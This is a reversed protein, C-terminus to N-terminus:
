LLYGFDEQTLAKGYKKFSLRVAEAIHRNSIPEEERAALFAAQLLADKIESGSMEFQEAFFDLDLGEKVPAKGPLLKKWLGKRTKADPLQFHVMYKIRRKFADDINDMLNTALVSIGEYEELKQLLHAVESNAHRDNSDSVATRKSFFADAEDFFLLANLDRAREFLESIHKQTEGIYKSVMRSIDIRYLELGLENAMAKVAMTKGTGPPGYFLACIGNGYFAKELFGWEAEVKNRYKLRGLILELQAKVEEEVMLDEWFINTDLLDAYEGLASSNRQKVAAVVDEMSIADRRYSIAIGLAQRLVQKIEGARLLYRNSVTVAEVKHNPYEKLFHKWLTIKTAIDPDKVVIKLFERAGAPTRGMTQESLLIVPVHERRLALLAQELRQEQGDNEAFLGDENRLAARSSWGTLCIDAEQLFALLCLEQVWGEVDEQGLLFRVNAFLVRRRRKRAMHKVLLKKGSGRSGCIMLGPLFQRECLEMLRGYVEEYGVFAEPEGTDTYLEVWAKMGEPMEPPGWLFFSVSPKLKLPREAEGNVSLSEPEPLFFKKIPSLLREATVMEGAEIPELLSYLKVALGLTAYTCNARGQLRRFVEEYKWSRSGAGALLICLIQFEKLDYAQCFRIFHLRGGFLTEEVRGGIHEEVLELTDFLLERRPPMEETLTEKAFALLVDLGQYVEEMLEQSSGYEEGEMEKDFYKGYIEEALM